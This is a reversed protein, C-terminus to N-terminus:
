PTVGTKVLLLARIGLWAIAALGTAMVGVLTLLGKRQISETALRLSRVHQFDKQMELPHRQDIGLTLLTEQVTEQVICKLEEPTLVINENM